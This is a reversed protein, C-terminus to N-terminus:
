QHVVVRLGQPIPGLTKAIIFVNGVVNGTSITVDGFAAIRRREGNAAIYSVEVAVPSVQPANLVTVSITLTVPGAHSAIVRETSHFPPAVFEIVQTIASAALVESAVAPRDGLLLVFLSGPLAFAVRSYFNKM